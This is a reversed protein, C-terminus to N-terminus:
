ERKRGEYHQELLTRSELFFTRSWEECYDPYTWPLPHFGKEQFLLTLEAYIGKGLYIRHYRPRATALVLSSLTLLGPDLNVTRRNDNSFDDELRNTALKAESLAGQPYLKEFSWFCRKIDSGMESSYFTSYGEFPVSRSESEVPGFLTELRKQVRSLDDRDTWLVGMILRAKRPIVGDAL